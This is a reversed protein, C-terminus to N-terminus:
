ADDDDDEEVDTHEKCEPCIDSDPWMPMEAGCCVSIPKM